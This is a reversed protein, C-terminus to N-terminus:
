GGPPPAVPELCEGAPNCWVLPADCCPVTDSCAEGVAACTPGADEETATAMDASPGSDAGGEGDDDGCGVSALVLSSLILARLIAM